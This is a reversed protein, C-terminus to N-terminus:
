RSLDRFFLAARWGSLPMVLERTPGAQAEDGDPAFPKSAPHAATAERRYSTSEQKNGRGRGATQAAKALRPERKAPGSTLVSHWSAGSFLHTIRTRRSNSRRLKACSDFRAYRAALCFAFLFPVM